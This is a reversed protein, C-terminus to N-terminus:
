PSKVCYPSGDQHHQTAYGVSCCVLLPSSDTPSTPIESPMRLDGQTGPCWKADQCANVEVGPHDKPSWVCAKDKPPQVVVVPPYPHYYRSFGFAILGLGILTIAGWVIVTSTTFRPM